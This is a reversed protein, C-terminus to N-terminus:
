YRHLMIQSCAWFKTSYCPLDQLLMMSLVTMEIAAGGWWAAGTAGVGAGGRCEGWLGKVLLEGVM